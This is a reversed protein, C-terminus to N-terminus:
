PSQRHEPPPWRDPPLASVLTSAAARVTQDLQGPPPDASLWLVIAGAGAQRLAAAVSAQSPSEGASLEAFRDLLDRATRVAVTGRDSVL